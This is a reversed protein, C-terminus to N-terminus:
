GYVDGIQIVFTLFNHSTMDNFGLTKDSITQSFVNSCFPFGSCDAATGTKATHRGHPCFQFIKKTTLARRHRMDQSLLLFEERWDIKVFPM